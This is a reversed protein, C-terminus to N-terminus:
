LKEAWHIEVPGLLGAKILPAQAFPDRWANPLKSINSRAQQYEKPKKADGVLWNNISNVVSIVLHNEGSKVKGTIDLRGSPYWHYGIREGNLFVEGIEKVNNLALLIVHEPSAEEASLDFTKYYTANGSYHRIADDEILHWSTLGNLTFTVPTGTRHEFRIEWPGGLQRSPITESKIALGQASYVINAPQTPISKRDVSENESFAVFGSGYAELSLPITIAGPTSEFHELPIISGTAPNWWSPTKGTVRFTCTGAMAKNRRNRVFYIDSSDTRRHIFDISDQPSGTNLQVDPGISASMLVERVDSGFIVKGKGYRNEKVRKGNIKGWLKGALKRIEEDTSQHHQLGYSRLPKKGVITAGESVMKELKQLVELNITEEDPLVLVAYSQGHPLVIRGDKVDMKNLIVDTNVVDYDYGFGLGEPIHKPAVFNPARDGYYFAVDGVFNGQQLLYSCRGLYEHFPESKPWWGNTTNILTGFNYVWGPEGSEPPTHPFTHYVFRNLGECMARDALPKLEGPGEQWLWVSTFSEAEVYKQDYIHSASAIGKIIQLLELQPHKNWFEGRPVTLSGLAKLDEFPVNHIPQGPGGAEAYFGLGEAESMERGKAYHNEIILDSLLKTFDFLFRESNDNNEVVFGDLVPLWPILSYGNRKQFEESLRPTWVASNVEYSDEYIYKLSRNHLSGLASKLRGFIYNINAEQAASSFHDLMLGNSNPSPLMLPQGTPACVYRTIRWTGAPVKWRLNGNQFESELSHIATPDAITSDSKLPHALIAVEKFYQPLRTNPDNHLLMKRGHFTEPIEPFPIRGSFESPGHILTDSRFLGMAGHEPKVWAGGANWSSSSVLGLELGIREAERVAHAIGQLSKDSLFPPGDPMPHDPNRIMSAVDWIDFGGMGKAKAQELEYTIQQLSFNGNVWPWLAKPRASIPPNLFGAALSNDSKNDQAHAQIVALSLLICVFRIIKM